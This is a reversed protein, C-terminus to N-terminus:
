NLKLTKQTDDFVVFLYLDPVAQNFCVNDFGVETNGICWSEKDLDLKLKGRTKQKKKIKRV